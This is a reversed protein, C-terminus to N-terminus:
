PLNSVIVTETDTYATEGGVTSFARVYLPVNIDSSPIGTVTCAVIYTGDLDSAYVTEGAATISTYVTTTARVMANEKNPEIVSKSLVFGVEDANLTNITAIFRVDYSGDENLKKQAGHCTLLCEQGSTDNLATLTVTYTGTSDLTGDNARFVLTTTGTATPTYVYNASAAVPNAGDASVNYTLTDEDADEFITTLDLIYATNVTVSAAAAAPVSAKRAPATNEFTESPYGLSDYGTGGAPYYVTVGDDYVTFVTTGFTPASMGKFTASSLSNCAAFASEGISTVTAPFTVERLSNCGFFARGGINAVKDPITLTELSRCGYFAQTGITTLDKPLNLTTLPCYTFAYEGISAVGAPITVTRLSQCSFFASDPIVTVGDPITIETLAICNNFADAGLSTLSDPLEVEQLSQCEEFASAGISTVGEEIVVSTIINRPIGSTTGWSTTGRNSTIKLLGTAPNFSFGIGVPANFAPYGLSSYGIGLDPYYIRFGKKCSSFVGTGFNPATSGLFAASVLSFCGEFAYDGISIVSDPITVTILSDCYWFASPQIATVSNEIVLKKISSESAIGPDNQWNTTGSDGTITLTGSGSDFSYGDGTIEAAYTRLSTFGIVMIVTLLLVIIRKRM